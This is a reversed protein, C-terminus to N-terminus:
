FRLKFSVSWTWDFIIFFFICLIYSEYSLCLMWVMEHILLGEGVELL